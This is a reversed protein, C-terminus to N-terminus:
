VLVEDRVWFVAPGVTVCGRGGRGPTLGRLECCLAQRPQYRSNAGGAGSERGPAALAVAPHPVTLVAPSGARQLGPHGDRPNLLQLSRPWAAGTGPLGRAARDGASGRVRMVPQQLFAWVRLLAM